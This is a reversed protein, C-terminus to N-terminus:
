RVQRREVLKVIFDVIKNEKQDKSTKEQDESKKKQDKNTKKQDEVRKLKTGAQLRMKQSPQEDPISSWVSCSISM